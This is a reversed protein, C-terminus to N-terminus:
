KIDKLVDSIDLAHYRLGMEILAHRVAIEPRCGCLLVEFAYRNSFEKRLKRTVLKRAMQLSVRDGFTFTV